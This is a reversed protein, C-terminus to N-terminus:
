DVRIYRKVSGSSNGGLTIIFSFDKSEGPALTESWIVREGDSFGVNLVGNYVSALYQDKVDVIYSVVRASSSDNMVTYKENYHVAWNVWNFSWGKLGCAYRSTVLLVDRTDAYNPYPGLKMTGSGTPVSLQITENATEPVVEVGCTGVDIRGGTLHTTMANQSKEKGDVGTWALALNGKPTGDNIYVKASQELEPLLSYNGSYVRAYPSAVVYESTIYNGNYKANFTNAYDGQFALAAMDLSGSTTINLIGDFGHDGEYWAAGSVFHYAGSTDTGYTTAFASNGHFINFTTKGPITFTQGANACTGYYYQPWIESMNASGSSAGCKNIKLTVDSDSGNWFRLVYYFGEGGDGSEPVGHEYYIETNGAPITDRYILKENEAMVDKFIMEPNNIFIWKGRERMSYSIKPAWEAYLTLDETVPTNFDYEKKDDTYWGVFKQGALTPSTPRSITKGDEVSIKNAKVGPKTMISVNHKNESVTKNSDSKINEDDETNPKEEAEKKDAKYKKSENSERNSKEGNKSNVDNNTVGGVVYQEYFENFFGGPLLFNAVGFLLIYAIIGIVVHVLRKKAKRVQEENDKATLYQVGVISVGVVALIGVAVTLIRVVWGLVSFIGGEGDSSTCNIINTQVGGCDAFAYGQSIASILLALVLMLVVSKWYRKVKM